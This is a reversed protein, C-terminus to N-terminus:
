LSLGITLMAIFIVAIAGTGLEWFGINMKYQIDKVLTQNYIYVSIPIALSASILFIYLFNKSLLVILNQITAGLVKRITLEKIRSEATFVAMGFLGLISVSIAVISLFGYTKMSSSFNSYTREIDEEFFRANFTHDQDIGSWAADLKVMTEAMNQTQIRVNLYQIGKQNQVFAFPKIANYITGYHFDKVVGVIERTGDYFQVQKGIAELNSTINFDKVFAENVIMQDTRINNVFSQGVLLEHGLNNIYEADVSSLYVSLSDLGNILHGRSSNLNGISPIMSSKSIAEVEAVQMLAVKLLDPDNGQLPINLIRETSYGLDFNLAFKYQNYTLTVLIAFGMSLAFQIGVLVKRISVGTGKGITTIGKIISIPQFKTMILAPILGAVFGIIVAFGIFYLYVVNSLLLATTESIEADLSLFLPKIVHFLVLGVLLSFLSVLIAELTFQFFIQGKKAGVVKRVGIEKARKLSRAISLNAYNFCACFMVIITMIFM